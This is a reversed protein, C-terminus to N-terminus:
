LIDNNKQIEIIKNEKNELEKKNNEEIEKNKKNDNEINKLKNNLGENIANLEENLKKLKIIEEKLKVREIEIIENKTTVLNYDNFADYIYKINEKNNYFDFNNIINNDILIPVNVKNFIIKKSSLLEKYFDLKKNEEIKFSIVYSNINDYILQFPNLILLDSNISKETYEIIIKNYGAYYSVVINKYGLSHYLIIYFLNLPFLNV